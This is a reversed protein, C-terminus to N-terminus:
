EIVRPAGVVMTLQLLEGGGASARAPNVQVTFERLDLLTEGGQVRALLDAVGEIDGLAILTAPLMPLASVTTDPAGAVNLETVSLQSEDAYRQLLSQLAAAVLADNPGGLPRQTFGAMRLSRADVQAGLSSDAAAIGRWRALETRRLAIRTEREQWRRAGPIAGAALVICLAAVAGLRLTRRERASLGDAFISPM